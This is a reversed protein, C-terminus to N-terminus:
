EVNLALGILVLFLKSYQQNYNMHEENLVDFDLWDVLSHEKLIRLSKKLIEKYDERKRFALDFDLYNLM